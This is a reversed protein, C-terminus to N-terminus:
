IYSVRSTTIFFGGKNKYFLKTLNPTTGNGVQRLKWYQFVPNVLSFTFTSRIGFPSVLEPDGHVALLWSQSPVMSMAKCKTSVQYDQSSYFLVGCTSLSGHRPRFWVCPRVGAHCQHEILIFLSPRCNCSVYVQIFWLRKISSTSSTKVHVFCIIIM